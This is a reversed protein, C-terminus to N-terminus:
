HKREAKWRQVLFARDGTHIVLKKHAQVLLRSKALVDTWRPTLVDGWSEEALDVGGSDEEDLVMVAFEAHSQGQAERYALFDTAFKLGSQVEYGARKLSLFAKNRALLPSSVDRPFSPDVLRSFPVTENKPTHFKPDLLDAVRLKHGLITIIKDPQPPIDGLSHKKQTSERGQDNSGAGGSKESNAALVSADSSLKARKPAPGEASLEEGPAVRREDECAVGYKALTERVKAPGWVAETILNEARLWAMEYPAFTLTKACIVSGVGETNVVHHYWWAPVSKERDVFARGADFRWGYTYTDLPAVM